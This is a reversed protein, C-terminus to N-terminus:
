YDYGPPPPPEPIVSFTVSNSVGGGPAPNEVRVSLAGQAALDGATLNFTLNSDSLYNMARAVSNVFVTSTPVFGSGNITATLPLDGVYAFNPSLATIAPTPNSAPGSGSRVAMTTPNSHRNAMVIDIALNNDSRMSSPLVLNLQDLGVFGPARGAFGVAVPAGDVTVAPNPVRNGGSLAGTGLAPDTAGFGTGYLVVTEGPQAPNAATVPTINDQHLMAAPGSGFQNATFIGPAAPSIAVTRSVSTKGGVTVQVSASTQGALEAPIQIGIQGFTSYFIPAATGSVSAQTGGLSTSLKNDVTLRPSLAAPGDNLYKGFVAAISGPAVPSNGGAYSANNLVGGDFVVPTPQATPQLQDRMLGGANVTTHLNVYFGSPNTVMGILAALPAGGTVEVARFINGTGSADITSSPSLGTDIRIPGNVEAGGEHIHLGNVTVPAGFSYDIDFYVTGSAINGSNDRRIVATITAQASATVGSIPPVENATSMSGSFFRTETSDARLAAAFFLLTALVMNSIRIVNNTM